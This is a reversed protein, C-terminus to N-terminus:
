SECETGGNSVHREPLCQLTWYVVVVVVRNKMFLFYYCEVICERVDNEEKAQKLDEECKPWYWEVHPEQQGGQQACVAQICTKGWRLVVCNGCM